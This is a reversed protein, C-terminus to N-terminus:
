AAFCHHNFGLKSHELACFRPKSWKPPVVLTGSGDARLIWPLSCWHSGWMASPMQQGHRNGLSKSGGGTCAFEWRPCLIVLGLFMWKYSGFMGVDLDLSQYMYKALGLSGNPVKPLFDRGPFQAVWTPISEMGLWRQHSKARHTTPTGLSRDHVSGDQGLMLLDIFQSEMGPCPAM